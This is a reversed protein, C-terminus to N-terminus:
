AADRTRRPARVPPRQAAALITVAQERQEVTLDPWDMPNDAVYATIAAATAADLGPPRPTTM